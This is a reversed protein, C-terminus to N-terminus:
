RKNLFSLGKACIQQLDTANKIKPSLKERKWAVMAGYPKTQSLHYVIQAIPEATIFLERFAPAPYRLAFFNNVPMMPIAKRYADIIHGTSLTQIPHGPNHYNYNEIDDDTLPETLIEGQLGAFIEYDSSFSDFWASFDDISPQDIDTEELKDIITLKINNLTFKVKKILQKTDPSIDYFYPIESLELIMQLIMQYSVSAARRAVTTREGITKYMSRYLLEGYYRKTIDLGIVAGRNFRNYVYISYYLIGAICRGFPGGIIANQKQLPSLNALIGSKLKSILGTMDYSDIEIVNDKINYRVGNYKDLNKNVLTINGARVHGRLYDLLVPIFIDSEEYISLINFFESEWIM